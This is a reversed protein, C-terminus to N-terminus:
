VGKKYETALAKLERANNLAADTVDIGGVMRSIELNSEDEDLPKITTISHGDKVQKEILYHSDEMAAIQPLHTICVIQHFRALLHLKKAVMQATKGSIGADIEDFIMTGTRDKDAQLTKIALMIRSLEGGSAVKNLPKLKEGTNTSIYFEVNDCGNIQYHDTRDINVKFDISSFNLDNLAEILEKEFLTAVEARKDHLKSEVSKMKGFASDLAVKAKDYEAEINVFLDLRKKKNELEGLITDISDGYKSKLRNILNLRNEIQNFREEDFETDSLYSSIERNFDTLLSEIDQLMDYCQSAKEDYSSVASLEKLAYSIRDAACDNAGGTESHAKNMGDCIKQWNQLHKYEDELEDDEGTKLSADEIEAIEFELFSMERERSKGDAELEDLRGKASKYEHYAEEMAEKLEDLERGGFADLIELHKKTNQLVQSENQGHINILLEAVEKVKTIPVTESNIKSSSRGMTLKRSIILEDEAYIELEELSKRVEESDISFILEVLSFSEDDKIMEKSFKEGLCFNISGLIISKGAGTEGSLINLGESFDVELEDILAFNKVHLGQLM